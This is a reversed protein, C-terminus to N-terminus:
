SRQGCKFDELRAGLVSGLRCASQKATHGREMAKLIEDDGSQFPFHFMECLAPTEAVADIVRPSM